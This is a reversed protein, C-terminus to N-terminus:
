FFQLWCLTVAFQFFSQDHCTGCFDTLKERGSKLINGKWNGQNWDHKDVEAEEAVSFWGPSLKSDFIANETTLTPNTLWENKMKKKKKARNVINMTLNSRCNILFILRRSKLKRFCLLTSDCRCLYAHVCCIDCLLCVHMWIDKFRM